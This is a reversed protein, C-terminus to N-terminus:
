FAQSDEAGAAGSGDRRAEMAPCLFRYDCTKCPFGPQPPFERARIDAAVEQVVGNVQQLLKEDRRAAVASNDQLNYYVLRVPDLGMEERAALAYVSLQM